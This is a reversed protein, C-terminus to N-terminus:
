LPWASVRMVAGIVEDAVWRVVGQPYPIPRGRAIHSFSADVTEAITSRTVRTRYQSVSLCMSRATSRSDRDIDPAIPNNPHAEVIILPLPKRNRWRLTELVDAVSAADDLPTEDASKACDETAFM